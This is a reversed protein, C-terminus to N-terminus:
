RRWTEVYLLLFLIFLGGPISQSAWWFCLATLIISGFAKINRDLNM